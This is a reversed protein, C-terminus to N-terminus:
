DCASTSLPFVPFFCQGDDEEEEEGGEKGINYRKIEIKCIKGKNRGPPPFLM